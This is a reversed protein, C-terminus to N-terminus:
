HSSRWDNTSRTRVPLRLPKRHCRVNDQLTQDLLLSAWVDADLEPVGMAFKESFVNNIAYRYPMLSSFLKAPSKEPAESLSSDDEVAGKLSTFSTPLM